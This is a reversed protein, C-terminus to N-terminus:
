PKDSCPGAAGELGPERQPKRCTARRATRKGHAPEMSVHAQSLAGAARGGDRRCLFPQVRRSGPYTQGWGASAWPFPLGQNKKGGEM